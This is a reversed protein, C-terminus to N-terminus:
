EEGPSCSQVLSGTKCLSQEKQARQGVREVEDGRREIERAM